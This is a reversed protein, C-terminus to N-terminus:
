CPIVCRWTCLSDWPSWRSGPYIVCCSFALIMPTSPLMTGVGLLHQLQHRDNVSQMETATTPNQAALAFDVDQSTADFYLPLPSFAGDCSAFTPLAQLGTNSTENQVLGKIRAVFYGFQQASSPSPVGAAM